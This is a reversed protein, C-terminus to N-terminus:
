PINGKSCVRSSVNRGKRWSIWFCPYPVVEGRGGELFDLSRGSLLCGVGEERWIESTGIKGGLVTVLYLGLSHSAGPPVAALPEDKM